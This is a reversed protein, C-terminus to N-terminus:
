EFPYRPVFGGPLNKLDKEFESKGCSSSCVVFINTMKDTIRGKCWSRAVFSKLDAILVRLLSEDFIWGSPSATRARPSSDHEM